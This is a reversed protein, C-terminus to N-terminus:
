FFGSFFLPELGSSLELRWLVLVMAVAVTAVCSLVLQVLRRSSLELRHLVMSVAVAVAAVVVCDFLLVMFVPLVPLLVLLRALGDVDIEQM